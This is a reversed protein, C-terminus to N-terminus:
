RLLGRIGGGRDPGTAPSCVEGTPAQDRGAQISRTLAALTADSKSTGNSAGQPKGYQDLPGEQYKLITGLWERPRDGQTVVSLGRHHLCRRFVELTLGPSAALLMALQKAEGGDWVSEVGKYKVYSECANKFSSFRSDSADRSPVKAKQKHVQEQLGDNAITKGDTQKVKSPVRGHKQWRAKAGAMGAIRKAESLEAPTLKPGHNKEFERKAREWEGFVVANQYRGDEFKFNRLIRGGYQAWLEDGLGSETALDIPDSSITCDDTQWSSSLLYLYGSRATPHM